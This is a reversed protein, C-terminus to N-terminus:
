SEPPADLEAIAAEMEAIQDRLQDVRREADGLKDRFRALNSELLERRPDPQPEPAPPSSEDPM